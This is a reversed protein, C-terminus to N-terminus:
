RAVSTHDSIIKWGVSFKRLALTFLGHSDTGDGLKVRFRGFVLAADPSLVDVTLETFSLTGMSARDPYLSKYRALTPQWGFTLSGGSAFRLSDNRWYGDMFKDISGLNWANVQDELVKTVQAKIAADAASVPEATTGQGHVLPSLAGIQLIAVAVSVSLIYRSCRTTLNM